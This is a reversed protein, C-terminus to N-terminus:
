ATGRVQGQTKAIAELLALHIVKMDQTRQWAEEVDSLNQSVLQDAASGPALVGTLRRIAHILPGTHEFLDWFGEDGHWLYHKTSFGRAHRQRPNVHMAESHAGYNPSESTAAYRGEGAAHLRNRVRAAGFKRLLTRRDATLWEDIHAPNVAFDLLLTEIEMVDRMADTAVAVYGSLIAEAATEVDARSRDILFDIRCLIPDASFAQFLEDLHRLLEDLGKFRAGGVLAAVREARHQEAQQLAAALRPM